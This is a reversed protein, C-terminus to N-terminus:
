TGIPFKKPVTFEWSKVLLGSVYDSPRWSINYSFITPDLTWNDAILCETYAYMIGTQGAGYGLDWQTIDKNIRISVMGGYRPTGLKDWWNGTKNTNSTTTSKTASTSTTTTSIISTTTVNTQTVTSTSTPTSTSTICSALLMSLLIVGVIITRVSGRKM